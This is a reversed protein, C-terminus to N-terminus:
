LVCFQSPHMGLRVGSARAAEGVAALGRGILARLDPDRYFAQCSPHTYGPLVSSIIRLLRELPPRRAVHDVQHRLAEINHAVVASLKDFAAAPGVRALYAMTVTVANMRRAAEADGDDPIFKCCFGLRAPLASM